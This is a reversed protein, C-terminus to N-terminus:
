LSGLIPAMRRLRVLSHLRLHLGDRLFGVSTLARLRRIARGVPFAFSIRRFAVLRASGLDCFVFLSWEGISGLCLPIDDVLVVRSVQVYELIRAVRDDYTASLSRLLSPKRLLLLLNPVREQLM